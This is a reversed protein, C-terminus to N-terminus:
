VSIVPCPSERIISMVHTRLRGFTEGLVGRGIVLIDAADRLAEERIVSSPSGVIARLPLDLHASRLVERIEKEADERVSEQLERESRLAPWDTVSPVAHVVRLDAGWSRALQEAWRVVRVSNETTDMACLINRCPNHEQILPEEVHPSTWIPCRTDHLVKATVSGVLLARFPGMGHTPMMILDVGSSHAYDTIISGPDGRRAVRDVQLGDLEKTLARQVKDQFAATDGAHAPHPDGAGLDWIPPLVGVLTVKCKFREAFSRVFPVAAACQDSFDYPFLIHRIPLM